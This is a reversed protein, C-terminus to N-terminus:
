SCNDEHIMIHNLLNFIILITYECPNQTQYSYNFSNIIYLIFKSRDIVYGPSRNQIKVGNGWFEVIKDIKNKVFKSIDIEPLDNEIYKSVAEGCMHHYRTFKDKNLSELLLIKKSADKDFFKSFYATSAGALGAGIIVIDYDSNLLDVM